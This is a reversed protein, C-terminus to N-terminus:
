GPKRLPRKRGVLEHLADRVMGGDYFRPSVYQLFRSAGIRRSSQIIRRKRLMAPLGKVADLYLRLVTRAEGRRVHRLVIGCHLLVIQPAKRLLISAPVDKVMTWISNRIGHYLVFSSFGGGSSLQGIHKAGAGEAMGPSYGLLLARAALDTDESYCFYDEDFVYGHIARVDELLSRTYLACGGTPGFLPDDPSVRNSALCSSYFAIGMSDIRSEAQAQRVKAAVLERGSQIDVAGILSGPLGPDAEADSNLLLVYEIGPDRLLAEIGQNCAAAFGRNHDNASLHVRVGLGARLAALDDIGSANDVVVIRRLLHDELLSEVASITAGATNFNVVVAGVPSGM